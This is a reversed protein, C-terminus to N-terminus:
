WRAVARVTSVKPLYNRSEMAQLTHYSIGAAKAVEKREMFRQRRLQRLREGNLPSSLRGLERLRQRSVTSM